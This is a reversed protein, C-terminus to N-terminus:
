NPEWPLQNWIEVLMMLNVSGVLSYVQRPFGSMICQFMVKPVTLEPIPQLGSNRQVGIASTGTSKNQSSELVAPNIVLISDPGNVLRQIRSVVDNDSNKSPGAAMVCLSTLGFITLFAFTFRLLLYRSGIKSGSFAVQEEGPLKGDESDNYYSNEYNTYEYGYDYKSNRYRGYRSGRDVRNVVIGVINARVSNLVDLARTANERSQKLLGMALFVGGVRPAVASPDTVALLPPTGILFILNKRLLV